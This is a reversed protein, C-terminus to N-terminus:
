ETLTSLEAAINGIQRKPEKDRQQAGTRIQDFQEQVSSCVDELAVQTKQETMAATSTAVAEM